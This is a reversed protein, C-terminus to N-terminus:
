LFKAILADDIKEPYGSYRIVGYRDILLTHPVSRVNYVDSPRETLSDPEWLPVFDTYGEKAFFNMAYQLGHNVVVTIVVLGKKGFRTLLDQLHPMSALCHPCTTRWFELIVVKGLYDSLSHQVGDFDPLTFLPAAQGDYLGTKVNARQYVQSSSQVTGAPSVISVGSDTVQITKTTSVGDDRQNDFVMLTVQYEGSSAYTHAKKEGSGSFGDGFVWQYAVISGGSDQSSSADFLVSYPGNEGASVSFNAIPASNAQAIATAFLVIGLIFGVGVSTRLRVSIVEKVFPCRLM